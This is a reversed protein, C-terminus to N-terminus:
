LAISFRDFPQEPTRWAVDVREVRSLLSGRKLHEILELLAAREGQAVVEVSGGRENRVFGALGLGRAKRAAFDRFMVGQVRGVVVCRVENM